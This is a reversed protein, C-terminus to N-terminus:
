NWVLHSLHIELIAGNMGVEQYECGKITGEVHLHALGLLKSKYFFTILHLEMILNYFQSSDQEWVYEKEPEQKSARIFGAAINHAAWPSTWM